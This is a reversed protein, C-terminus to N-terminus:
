KALTQRELFAPTGRKYAGRVWEDRKTKLTFTDKVRKAASPPM